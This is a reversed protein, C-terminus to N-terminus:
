LLMEWFGMIEADLVSRSLMPVCGTGVLADIDSRAVFEAGEKVSKVSGYFNLNFWGMIIEVIVIWFNPIKFRSDM